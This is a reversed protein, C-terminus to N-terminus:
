FQNGHLVVTDRDITAQNRAPASTFCEIEIAAHDGGIKKVSIVGQHGEKGYAYSYIGSIGAPQLSSDLKLLTDKRHLEITFERRSKPSFWTGSTSSDLKSITIIGTIMGDPQFEDVRIEPYAPDVFGTLKIPTRTKTQTYVMEGVLLSDREVLWMFIPIKGNITGTWYYLDPRSQARAAPMMILSLLFAFIVNGNVPLQRM